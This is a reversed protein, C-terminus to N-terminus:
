HRIQFGMFKNAFLDFNRKGSRGGYLFLGSRRQAENPPIVSKRDDFDQTFPVIVLASATHRTIHPGFM